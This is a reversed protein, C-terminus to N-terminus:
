YEPLDIYTALGFDAIKVKGNKDVLINDPKLDRHMIGKSALYDMADLIDHIMEIVKNEPCNDLFSPSDLVKELTNGEVLEMVLYISNASEFVEYLKIISKHNLARM